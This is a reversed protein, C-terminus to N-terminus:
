NLVMGDNGSILEIIKGKHLKMRPISEEKMSVGDGIIINHVSIEKEKKKKKEKKRDSNEKVFM